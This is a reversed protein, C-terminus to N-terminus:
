LVPIIFFYTFYITNLCYSYSESHYKYENNRTMRRWECSCLYKYLEFSCLSLGTKCYYIYFSILVDKYNKVIRFIKIKIIKLSHIFTYIHIHTIHIFVMLGCMEMM